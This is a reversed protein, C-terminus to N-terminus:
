RLAMIKRAEYENKMMSHKSKSSSFYVSKKFEFHCDSEIEEALKKLDFIAKECGKYSDVALQKGRMEILEYLPVDIEYQLMATSAASSGNCVDRRDVMVVNKGEQVLKYAILAGTIGAGIILVDTSIDKELSPYSEVFENRILWFPENSRIDM